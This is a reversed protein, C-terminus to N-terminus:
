VSCKGFSRDIPEGTFRRQCLTIEIVDNVHIEDPGLEYCQVSSQDVSDGGASREVGFSQELRTQQTDRQM